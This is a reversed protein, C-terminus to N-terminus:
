EIALFWVGAGHRPYYAYGGLGPMRQWRTHVGNVADPVAVASSTAVQQVAFSVPDIAYVQGGSLTKLLFKGIKPEYWAFNFRGQTIEAVGEGVFSIRTLTNSKIDYILGGYPAKYADGFFIVRGLVPDVACARAYVATENDIWASLAAYTGTLPDFRRLNGPTAVYVQESVPDKCISAGTAGNRAGPTADPWSGPPHWDESQLSFADTKWNGENGSGWLSGAGFKFIANRSALFNLAYYTHTSSPRGDLYYDHFIGKSYDSAVIDSTATPARLLRWAPFDVSLNIEYVENGAYDAHGGNAASFLRSTRVDAALGNWADIRASLAGPVAPTPAISSLDTGPIQKWQWRAMSQRWSPWQASSSPEGGVIPLVSPDYTSVAGSPVGMPEAGVTASAVTKDPAVTGTAIETVATESTTDWPKVTAAESALRLAADSDTASSDLGGGSGGCAALALALSAVPWLKSASM